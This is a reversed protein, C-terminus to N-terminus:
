LFCCQATFVDNVVISGSINLIGTTKQYVAGMGNSKEVGAISRASFLFSLDTGSSPISSIAPISILGSSADNATATQVLTFQKKYTKAFM